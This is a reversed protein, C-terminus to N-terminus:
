PSNTNILEFFATNGAPLSLTPVAALRNTGTPDIQTYAVGADAWPGSINAASQLTYGDAPLNWKLWYGLGAPLWQVYLTSSTRWAYNASLGPGAFNDAFIVGQVNNTVLLQTLVYNQGNNIGSNAGDNKFVGWNMFSTNPNFNNVYNPDQSFNPLTVNNVTGDPAVITGAYDSSFNLTWTGNASKLNPYTFQTVNPPNAAPMNTKWEFTSMVVPVTNTTVVGSNTVYSTSTGNQVRMVVLDSVNWDPSGSTENGSTSTDENAIYIHGEFGPASAPSPFNSITMSYTAPEQGTWFYNVFNDGSPICLQNRDWQDGSGDVSFLVGGALTNPKISAIRPVIVATSLEINDFYLRVPGMYNGSVEIDYGISNTLSGGQPLVLKLHKWNAFSSDLAIGAPICNYPGGWSGDRVAITLAGYTGDSFKTSNAVDVKVDCEFYTFRAPNFGQQKIVWSQAWAAWQAAVPFALDMQMAGLPTMGGGADESTNLSSTESVGTWSEESYTASTDNTFTDMVWPNPVPAITVNDIYYTVPGSFTAGNPTLQILLYSITDYASSPISMSMHQWGSSFSSDMGTWGFGDWSYGANRFVAQVYGYTPGGDATGSAPDVYIDFQVTFYQASNVPTPIAWQPDAETTLGTSDVQLCGGPNGKTANWSVTGTGNGISWGSIDSNFTDTVPSVAWGMSTGALTLGAVALGALSATLSHQTKTRKIM